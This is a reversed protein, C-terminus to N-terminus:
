LVEVEHLGLVIHTVGIGTCAEIGMKHRNTNMCKIVVIHYIFDNVFIHRDSFDIVNVGYLVPETIFKHVKGLSIYQVLLALVAASEKDRGASGVAFVTLTNVGGAAFDALFDASDVGKGFFVFIIFDMLRVCFCVAPHVGSFASHINGFLFKGFPAFSGTLLTFHTFISLNRKRFKLSPQILTLTPLYLRIKGVCPLIAVALRIHLKGFGINKRLM